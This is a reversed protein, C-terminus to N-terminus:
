KMNEDTSYINPRWCEESRRMNKESCTKEIWWMECVAFSIIFKNLIHMSFYCVTTTMTQCVNCCVSLTNLISFVPVRWCTSTWDLSKARHCRLKDRRSVIIVETSLKEQTVASCQLHHLEKWVAPCCYPKEGTHVREQIKLNGSQSFSKDCHSCKYVYLM